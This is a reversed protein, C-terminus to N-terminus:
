PNELNLIIWVGNNNIINYYLIKNPIKYFIIKYFKKNNYNLKNDKKM